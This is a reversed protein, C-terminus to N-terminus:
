NSEILINLLSKDEKISQVDEVPLEINKLLTTRGEVYGKSLLAPIISNIEAINNKKNFILCYKDNEVKIINNDESYHFREQKKIPEIYSVKVASNKSKRTKYEFGNEDKILSRIRQTKPIDNKDVIEGQNNRYITEIKLNM